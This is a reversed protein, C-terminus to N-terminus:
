MKIWFYKIYLYIFEDYAFLVKIYYIVGEEMGTTKELDWKSRNRPGNKKENATWCKKPHEIFKEIAEFDDM